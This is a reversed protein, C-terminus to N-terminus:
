GVSSRFCEEAANKIPMEGTQRLADRAIAICLTATHTSAYDPRGAFAAIKRLASMATDNFADEPGAHATRRAAQAHLTLDQRAPLPASFDPWRVVVMEESQDTHSFPASM